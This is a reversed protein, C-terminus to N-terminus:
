NGNYQFGYSEFLDKLADSSGGEHLGSIAGAMDGMMAALTPWLDSEPDTLLPDNLLATLDDFIQEWGAQTHASNIAASVLGGEKLLDTMLVLTTRINEGTDDLMLEQLAPLKDKMLTYMFDFGEEGQFVWNSGDYRAFLKGATYILGKIEDDSFELSGLSLNMLDILDELIYYDGNPHMFDYMTDFTENFATWDPTFRYNCTVDAGTPYNEKFDKLKFFIEGTTYNVVGIGDIDDGTVVGSSDTANIASGNVYVILSGPIVATSSLEDEVTGGASSLFEKLDDGEAKWQDADSIGALMDVMGEIMDDMVIDCDRVNGYSGSVGTAFQWPEFISDDLSNNVYAEGKTVKMGTMLQEIGFAIKKIVGWTKTDAPDYNPSNGYIDENGNAIYNLLQITKTSLKTESMLPVLGDCAKPSSEFLMGTLTRMSEDPTYSSFDTATGVTKLYENAGGSAMGAKIKPKWCGIPNQGSKQYYFMPKGLAPLLADTIIKAPYRNNSSNNYTRSGDTPAEYYTLDRLTGMLSVILPFARSRSNWHAFDKGVQWSNYDDIDNLIYGMRAVPAMNYGVVPPLVPGDGLSAFMTAEDVVIGLLNVGTVEYIDMAIRGDGPIISNGYGNDKKWRGNDSYSSSYKRATMLGSVGNAEIRCSIVFEIQQLLYEFDVVMPIVYLNKKEQMLYHFNKQMAEEQSSCERTKGQSVQLPTPKEPILETIEYCGATSAIVLGGKSTPAYCRGNIEFLYYDSNWKEKYRNERGAFAIIRNGSGNFISQVGNGQIDTIESKGTRWDTDVSTIKVSNGAISAPSIGTFANNISDRIEIATYVGPSLTVDVPSLQDIAIRVVTTEDIKHKNFEELVPSEGTGPRIYWNLPNDWAVDTQKETFLISGPYAIKVQGGSVSAITEGMANNIQNVM